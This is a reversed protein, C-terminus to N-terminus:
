RPEGVPAHPLHRGRMKWWILAILIGAGLGVLLCMGASLFISLGSPPLFAGNLGAAYDPLQGLTGLAGLGLGSGVCALVAGGIIRRVLSSRSRGEPQRVLGILAVVAGCSAVSLPVLLLLILGVFLDHSAVVVGVAIAVLGAIMIGLGIAPQRQPSM